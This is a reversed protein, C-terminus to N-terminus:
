IFTYNYRPTSKQMRIYEGNCCFQRVGGWLHMGWIESKPYPTDSVNRITYVAITACPHSFVGVCMLVCEAYMYTRYGWVGLDSIQPICERPPPPPPADRWNQQLPSYRYM